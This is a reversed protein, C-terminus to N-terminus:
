PRGGRRGERVAERMSERIHRDLEEILLIFRVQQSPTLTGRVEDEFRTRIEQQQQRLTSFRDLLPRLRADKEADTGPGMLIQNFQHRLDGSERGRQMLALDRRQWAESITRAREESLVLSEQIKQTRLKLIHAIVPSDPPPMPRRAGPGPQALLLAPFLAPILWRSM